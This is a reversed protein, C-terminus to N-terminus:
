LQVHGIPIELCLMSIGSIPTKISISLVYKQGNGIGIPNRSKPVCANIALKNKHAELLKKTFLELQVM